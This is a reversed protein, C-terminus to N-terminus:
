NPGPHFSSVKNLTKCNLLTYKHPSVPLALLRSMMVRDLGQMLLIKKFSTMNDEVGDCMPKLHIENNPVTEQSFAQMRKPTERIVEGGGGLEPLKYM